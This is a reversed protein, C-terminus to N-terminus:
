KKKSAAHQKLYIRYAILAPIGFIFIVATLIGSPLLHFDMIGVMDEENYGLGLFYSLSLPAPEVVEVLGNMYVIEGQFLNIPFLCLPLAICIMAFFFIYIPKQFLQKM